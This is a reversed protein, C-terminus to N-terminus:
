KKKHNKEIFLIEINNKNCLELLDKFKYNSRGLENSKSWDLSKGMEKAIQEHTKNAAQRIFKYIEKPQYDNAKLYM